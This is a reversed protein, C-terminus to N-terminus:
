SAKKNRSEKQAYWVYQFPVKVKNTSVARNYYYNKNKNMIFHLDRNNHNTKPNLINYYYNKHKNMIFHLDRNNHNTKPNLFTFNPSHQIIYVATCNCKNKKETRCNFIM